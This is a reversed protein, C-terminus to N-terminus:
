QAPKGPPPHPELKVLAMTNAITRVPVGSMFPWGLFVSILPFVVNTLIHDMIVPSPKKAKPKLATISNLMTECFILLTFFLGIGASLCHFSPGSMTGFDTITSMNMVRIWSSVSIENFKPINLTPLHYSRFFIREMVTVFLM